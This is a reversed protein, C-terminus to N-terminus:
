TLIQQIESLMNDANHYNININFVRDRVIVAISPFSNLGLERAIKVEQELRKSEKTQRMTNLFYKDEIGITRACDSLTDIDSPNKASQYYALQIQNIMEREQNIDRAVLCARCAPYTSRRPQNQQWFNHNFVTGLQSEIHKWVAQIKNQMPLPMMEDSDIALGGLMPQIRLKEEEIFPTLLGQLADWVPRFAWCWSCMPDYCYVLKAPM